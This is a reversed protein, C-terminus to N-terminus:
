RPEEVIADKIQDINKWLTTMDRKVITIEEQSKKMYEIEIMLKTLDTKIKAWEDKILTLQEIKVQHVKIDQAMAEINGIKKQMDKIYAGVIFTLIPTIWPIIQELNM